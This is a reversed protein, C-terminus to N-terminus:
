TRSASSVPPLQYSHGLLDRLITKHLLGQAKLAAGLSHGACAHRVVRLRAEPLRPLYDLQRVDAADAGVHLVVRAATQECAAGIAGRLAAKRADDFDARGAYTGDFDRVDVQPVLAVVAGNAHRAFRLAGSAGMSEGLVCVRRYPACLAGLAADWWAGGDWEGSQPSTQFWSQATDLAHAVALGEGAARLTAGWEARVVGRWGLSSFVLVLTSAGGGGGSVILPGLQRSAHWGRGLSAAPAASGAAAAAALLSRLGLASDPFGLPALLPTGLAGLAAAYLAHVVREEDDAHPPVAVFDHAERRRLAYARAAAADAAAARRPAAAALAAARASAFAGTRLAADLRAYAERQAAAPLLLFRASAAVAAAASLSLQRAATPHAAALGLAELADDWLRADFVHQKLPAARIGFAAAAAALQRADAPLHQAAHPPPLARCVALCADLLPSLAPDGREVSLVAADLAHLAALAAPRHPSTSPSAAPSPTSLAHAASLSSFAYLLVPLRM